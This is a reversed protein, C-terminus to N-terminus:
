MRLPNAPAARLAAQGSAQELAQRQNLSAQIAELFAACEPRNQNRAYDVPLLGEPGPLNLPAGLAALLRLAPLSGAALLALSVGDNCTISLDAGRAALLRLADLKGNGLARMAPTWGYRDRADVLAGRDILLAM